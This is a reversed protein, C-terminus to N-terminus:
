RDVEGLVIDLSALSAILDPIYEGEAM